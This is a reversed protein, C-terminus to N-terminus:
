ELSDAIKVLDEATLKSPLSAHAVIVRLGDREFVVKIGAKPDYVAPEGPFKGYSGVLVMAPAGKVTTERAFGEPVDFFIKGPAAIQEISIADKHSTGYAARVRGESSSVYQLTYGEPLYAPRLVHRGLRREAEELTVSSAQDPTGGEMQSLRQRFAEEEAKGLQRVEMSAFLSSVLRAAAVPGGALVFAVLALVAAVAPLWSRRARPATMVPVPLAGVAEAVGAGLARYQGLVTCCKQCGELHEEFDSRETRSLDDDQYRSLIERPVACTM